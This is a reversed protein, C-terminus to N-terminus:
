LVMSYDSQNKTLVFTLSQTSLFKKENATKWPIWKTPSTCALTVISLCTWPHCHIPLIAMCWKFGVRLMQRSVQPRPCYEQNGVVTTTVGGDKSVLINWNRIITSSIKKGVFYETCRSIFSAEVGVHNIILMKGNGSPINLGGRFMTLWKKGEMNNKGVSPNNKIAMYVVKQSKCQM